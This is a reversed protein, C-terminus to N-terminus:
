KVRSDRCHRTVGKTDTWTVDVSGARVTYGGGTYLFGKAVPQQTLDITEGQWELTASFPVFRMKVTQGDDCVFTGGYDQVERIAPPTPAPAPACSALAFLGILFLQQRAM